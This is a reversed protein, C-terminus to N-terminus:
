GPTPVDCFDALVTGFASIPMAWTQLGVVGDAIAGSLKQTAEVTAATHAGYIGDVELAPESDPVFTGRGNNLVVQLKEVVPGESGDSLTPPQPRDGGLSAWTIPGVVGDVALNSGKQYQEVAAKTVPGFIGDIQKFDLVLRDFLYQLWRVAPGTSGEAITAPFTM